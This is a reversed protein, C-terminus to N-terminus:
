LIWKVQIVEINFYKSYYEWAHRPSKAHVILTSGGLFTLKYKYM